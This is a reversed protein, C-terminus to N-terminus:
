GDKKEGEESNQGGKLRNDGRKKKLVFFVIYNDKNVTYGLRACLRNSKCENYVRYAEDETEVPIFDYGNEDHMWRVDQRKWKNLKFKQGTYPQLTIDHITIPEM